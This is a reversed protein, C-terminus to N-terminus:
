KDSREYKSLLEELKLVARELAAIDADRSKVEVQLQKVQAQPQYKERTLKDVRKQFGSKTGNASSSGSHGNSANQSATELGQRTPVLSIVETAM